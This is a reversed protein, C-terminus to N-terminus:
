LLPLKRRVDDRRCCMRNRNESRYACAVSGNCLFVERALEEYVGTDMCIIGETNSPIAHNFCLDIVAVHCKKAFLEIETGAPDICYDMAYISFGGEFFDVPLFILKNELWAVGIVSRNDCVLLIAVDDALKNTYIM